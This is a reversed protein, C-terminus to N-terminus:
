FNAGVTCNDRHLFTKTDNDEWKFSEFSIDEDIEEWHLGFYSESWQSREKNTAKQLRPFFVMPQSLVEGSITEIYIRENEFWLRNVTKMM